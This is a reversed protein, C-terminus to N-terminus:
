SRELPPENAAADGGAEEQQQLRWMRAYAGDAALLEAHKGREIISGDHM